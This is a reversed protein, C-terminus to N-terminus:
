HLQYCGQSTTIGGSVKVSDFYKNSTVSSRKFAAFDAM